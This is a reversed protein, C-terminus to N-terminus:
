GPTSSHFATCGLRSAFSRKRSHQTSVTLQAVTANTTRAAVAASSRVVDVGGRTASAFSRRCLMWAPRSGASVFSLRVLHSMPQTILCKDHTLPQFEGMARTAGPRCCDCAMRKLALGLPLASRCGATEGLMWRWGWDKWRPVPCGRQRQVGHDVLLVDDTNGVLDAAPLLSSNQM